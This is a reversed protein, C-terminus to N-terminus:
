GPSSGTVSTSSVTPHKAPQATPSRPLAPPHSWGTTVTRGVLGVALGVVVSLVVLTRRKSAGRVVPRRVGVDRSDAAALRTARLLHALVHVAIFGLWAVFILQHIRFLTSSQPGALWLAVGSVMLIVTSVMLLPGLLRLLPHPPGARRFRPDGLYYRSFRWLTSGIKVLLPPILVLGIVIHWSLLRTILPITLGEAFLLVILVLGTTGTLRANAEVAPDRGGPPEWVGVIRAAESVVIPPSSPGSPDLASLGQPRSRRDPAREATRPPNGPSAGVTSGVRRHEVQEHGLRTSMASLAEMASKQRDISHRGARTPRRAIVLLAVVFVALV